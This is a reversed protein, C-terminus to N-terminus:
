RIASAKAGSDSSIFGEERAGEVKVDKVGSQCWKESEQKLKALVLTKGRSCRKLQVADQVNNDWM